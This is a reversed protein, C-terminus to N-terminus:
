PHPTSSIKSRGVLVLVKAFEDDIRTDAKRLLAGGSVGAMILFFPASLLFALTSTAAMYTGFSFTIGLLLSTARIFTTLFLYAGFSFSSILLQTAVVTSTTKLFTLLTTATLSDLGLARRLAERDSETLRAVEQRLLDEFKQREEPSLSALKKKLETIMGTVIATAVDEELSGADLYLRVDIKLTKAARHVIANALAVDKVTRDVKALEVLNMRLRVQLELTSLQSLTKIEQEIKHSVVDFNWETKANFEEIKAGIEPKRFREAALQVAEFARRKVIHATRQIGTNVINWSDMVKMQALLLILEERSLTSLGALFV